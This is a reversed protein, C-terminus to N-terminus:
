PCFKPSTNTSTWSCQSITVGSANKLTATDGDDGWVYFTLGWYRDTKTNTGKGTHIKVTAGAALSFYGFKYVHSPIGVRALDRLSWNTLWRTTTGTNRIVIYEKNLYYNTLPDPGNVPDYYAATIKVGGAAMAPSTPAIVLAGALLSLLVVARTIRRSM